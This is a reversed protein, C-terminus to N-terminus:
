FASIWELYALTHWAIMYECPHWFLLSCEWNGLLEVWGEGKLKNNTPLTRHCINIYSVIQISYIVMRYYTVSALIFSVIPCSSLLVCPCSPVFFKSLHLFLFYWIYMFRETHLSVIKEFFGFKFPAYPIGQHYFCRTRRWSAIGSSLYLNCMFVSCLFPAKQNSTIQM